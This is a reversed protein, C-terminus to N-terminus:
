IKCTTHHWILYANQKVKLASPNLCCPVVETFFHCIIVRSSQTAPIAWHNAHQAWSLFTTPKFGQLLPLLIKKELTLKRRQSKNRYRNWGQTVAAACLLDQGHQWFHLHCTVALYAHVKRIHSHMFHWPAYNYQTCLIRQSPLLKMHCWGHWRKLYVVKTSIWFSAIFFFFSNVWTSVRIVHLHWSDAQSCGTSYLLLWCCCCCCM